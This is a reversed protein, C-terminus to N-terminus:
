CVGAHCLLGFESVSYICYLCVVTPSWSDWFLLISFLFFSIPQLWNSRCTVTGNIIVVPLQITSFQLLIIVDARTQLDPVTGRCQSDRSKAPLHGIRVDKHGDRKHFQLRHTKNRLMKSQHLVIKSLSSVVLVFDCCQLCRQQWRDGMWDILICDDDDDDEVDDHKTEDTQRLAPQVDNKSDFFDGLLELDDNDDCNRVNTGATVCDRRHSVAPQPISRRRVAALGCRSCAFIPINVSPRLGICRFHFYLRCMTCQILPNELKEAGVCVNVCCSNQLLLM